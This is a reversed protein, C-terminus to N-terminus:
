WDMDPEYGLDVLLAGAVAKYTQRDAATFVNAWDGAVGKRFFSSPDEEGRTRSRGRRAERGSMREFSSADVCRRVVAPGADAGLFRLARSLEAEPDELMREYHVTLYRDGLMRRGQELAKATVTAWGLASNELYGEPFISEGLSNDFTGSRYRDRKAASDVPMGRGRQDARNWIHHLASVAVDRGDRVIHIARATPCARAIQAVVDADGYLPTKDGGILKGEAETRERILREVGAGAIREVQEPFSGTRTWVSRYAWGALEPSGLLSEILSRGEIRGPTTEGFFRGEGKCLVQPHEDLSHMLWSTGSKGVGVLFFVPEEKPAAPLPRRMVKRHRHNFIASAYLRRSLPWGRIREVEQEVQARQAWERVARRFSTELDESLLRVQAEALRRRAAEDDDRPLEGDLGSGDRDARLLLLHPPGDNWELALAQWEGAPAAESAAATGGPTVIVGRRCVRGLEALLGAPDSASEVTEGRVVAYDYLAAEPGLDPPGAELARARDPAALPAVEIGEVRASLSGPVPDVALVQPAGSAGSRLLAVLELVNLEFGDLPGGRGATM